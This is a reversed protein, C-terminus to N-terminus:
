APVGELLPRAADRDAKPDIIIRRIIVTQPPALPAGDRGTVEVQQKERWGACAKLWFTTAAINGPTTAHQYLCQAV